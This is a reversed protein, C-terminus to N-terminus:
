KDAAEPQPENGIRRITVPFDYRRFSGNESEREGRWKRFDFQIGKSM